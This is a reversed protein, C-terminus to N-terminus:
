APSRYDEDDDDEEEEEDGGALALSASPQELSPAASALPAAGASLSGLTLLLALILHRM